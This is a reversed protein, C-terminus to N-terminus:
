PVFSYLVRSKLNKKRGGKKVALLFQILSFHFTISFNSIRIQNQLVKSITFNETIYGFVIAKVRRKNNRM